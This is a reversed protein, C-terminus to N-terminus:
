ITTSIVSDAFPRLFAETPVVLSSMRPASLLYRRFYLTDGVLLTRLPSLSTPSLLFKIYLTAHLCREGLLVPVLNSFHEAVGKIKQRFMIMLVVMMSFYVFGLIDSTRRCYHSWRRPRRMKM